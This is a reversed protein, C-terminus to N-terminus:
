ATQAGRPFVTFFEAVFIAAPHNKGLRVVEGSEDHIFVAVVEGRLEEREAHIHTLREYGLAKGFYEARLAYELAAVDRKSFFLAQLLYLANQVAFDGVEYFNLFVPQFHEDVNFVPLFCTVKQVLFLVPKGCPPVGRAAVNQVAEAVAASKGYVARRNCLAYSRAINRLGREVANHLVCFEVPKFIDRRHAAVRKSKEAIESLAARLEVENDEVRGGEAFRRVFHLVGVASIFVYVNLTKFEYFAAAKQYGAGARM